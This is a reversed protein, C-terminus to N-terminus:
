ARAVPVDRIDTLYHPTCNQRKSVPGVRASGIRVHDKGFRENLNDVAQMLAHAKESLPGKAVTQGIGFDFGGQASSTERSSLDMLMVGVKVIDHFPEYIERMGQAAANALERTDDTAILLPVVASRSFRPGPRFPSSMAFVSVVSCVSGQQRLKRATNTAFLTALEVLERLNGVPTGLSRSCMIQQRTASGELTICSIGNLERITREMNIGWRARATAVDLNSLDLATLIGGDLLQEAYRRGIGWVSDVPTAAMCERLLSPSVQNLNCVHAMESPYIGPRRFAQKSIHSALKALTRTRGIGAGMELGLWTKVRERMRWVRDTHDGPIGALDAMAEDVSYQFVDPSLGALLSHMRSSMECYLPYNASLGILGKSDQLEKIKFWPVGMKIGISRALESRAVVCSDNPGLVVYPQQLLAPRM